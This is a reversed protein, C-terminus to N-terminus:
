AIGAGTGAYMVALTSVLVSVSAFSAALAFMANRIM